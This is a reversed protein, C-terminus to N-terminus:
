AKIEKISSILFYGDPLTENIRKIQVLAPYIKNSVKFRLGHDNIYWRVIKQAKEYDVGYELVCPRFDERNKPVVIVFYLNDMTRKEKKKETRAYRATFKM